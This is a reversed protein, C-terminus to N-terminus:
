ISKLNTQCQNQTPLFRVICNRYNKGFLLHASIKKMRNNEARRTEKWWFNNGTRINNTKTSQWMIKYKANKEPNRKSSSANVCKDEELKLSCFHVRNERRKISIFNFKFFFLEFSFSCVSCVESSFWFCVFFCRWCLM